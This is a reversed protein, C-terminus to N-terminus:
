GKKCICSLMERSHWVLSLISLTKFSIFSAGSIMFCIGGSGTFIFSSSTLEISGLGVTGICYHVLSLSHVYIRLLRLLEKSYVALIFIGAKNQENM